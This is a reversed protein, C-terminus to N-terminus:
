IGNGNKIGRAIASSVKDAQEPPAKSMWDLLAKVVMMIFAQWFDSM